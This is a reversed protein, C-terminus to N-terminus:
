SRFDKAINLLEDIGKNISEAVNKIYNIMINQKFLKQCYHITSEGIQNISIGAIVADILGGPIQGIFPITKLINALCYGGSCIGTVLMGSKASEKIITKKESTNRKIGYIGLISTILSLEIGALLPLDSFPLFHTFGVIAGIVAMSKITVESWFKAHAMIDEKKKLHSFFISKSIINFMEKETLNDHLLNIDLKHPLYYNYIREMLKDIGYIENGDFDKKLNVQFVNNLFCIKSFIVSIEELFRKFFIQSKKKKPSSFNLVFFIPIEYSLLFNIFDIENEDITRMLRSNLVYLIGHIKEKYIDMQQVKSKIIKITSDVDNGSIFGPTDYFSLSSNRKNFKIIKNTTNKGTTEKARKENLLLNILTSKGSGPKGTVFFNLTFPLNIEINNSNIKSNIIEDDGIQNYYKYYNILKENLQINLEEEKLIEIDREDYDLENDIIFKSYFQKNKDNSIFLLKPRKLRSKQEFFTILNLEDNNGNKLFVIIVSEGDINKNNYNYTIFNFTNEIMENFDNSGLEIFLWDLNKSKRLQYDIKNELIDIKISSPGINNQNYFNSFLDNSKCFIIINMKGIQIKEEM